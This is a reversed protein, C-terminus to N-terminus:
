HRKKYVSTTYVLESSNINVDLFNLKNEVGLEYTFELGSELEMANKLDELHKRDRVVVFCDDVYRAYTKPCLDQDGLVKNEVFSMFFDAFAVGLPSGMAIGDTQLYLSGDIHKFPSSTTCSRLLKELISKDFPPPLTETSNYVADSIIKITREVPM